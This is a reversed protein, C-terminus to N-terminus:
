RGTKSGKEGKVKVSDSEHVVNGCAYALGICGVQGIGLPSDNFREDGNVVASSWTFGVHTFDEIGNKIKQGIAATPTIKGVVKRGFAGDTIIKM